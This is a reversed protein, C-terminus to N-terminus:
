PREVLLYDHLSRYHDIAEQIDGPDVDKGQEIAQTIERAALFETVIERDDGERAVADDLAYGRAELIQAMLRDLEPLAEGPSTEVDEEFQQWQSEWEHKDLGPELM